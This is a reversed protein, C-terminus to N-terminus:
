QRRHIDGGSAKRQGAVISKYLGIYRGAQIELAYEEEAIRRCNAALEARLALDRLLTRLAAGFAAVDGVPALLGTVGPRVMDPIGGVDFGVVPTGCAMSELVTNPLNDQLSPIAFIDAASYILSLLRDNDVYGLHLHQTDLGVTPKSQGVSLALLNPVDHLDALAEALRAFGKRREEVAHAIFLIVAADPPIGLVTRALRRDRPAFDDVDLGYPIVTVPWDSLLSSQRVADGLWRSPTVFRLQGPAIQAFARRKRLWIRHSLDGSRGSGLQPCAGCTREYKGCGRDYHCGGTFANMDHLTWVVPIRQSTRAFFSHWDVFESIWHLSIVDAAPMQQFLSSRHPTTTDSFLGASAPSQDQFQGVFQWRLGQLLRGPLQALVSLWNPPKPKFALVTPDDSHRHAVFMSSDQGLRELGKHLRYAARAAGGFIDHTNIHLVRLPSM